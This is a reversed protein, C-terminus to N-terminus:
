WLNGRGLFLGAAAIVLAVILGLLVAKLAVGIGFVLAAVLFLILLGMDPSHRLTLIARKWRSEPEGWLFLWGFTQGEGCAPCERGEGRPGDPGLDCERWDQALSIVGCEPCKWAQVIRDEIWYRLRYRARM